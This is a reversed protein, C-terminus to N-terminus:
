ISSLFDKTVFDVYEIDMGKSFFFTKYETCNCSKLSYIIYLMYRFSSQSFLKPYIKM